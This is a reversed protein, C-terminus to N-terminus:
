QCRLAAFVLESDHAGAARLDGLGVWGDPGVAASTGFQTDLPLTSSTTPTGDPAFRDFLIPQSPPADPEDWHLVMYHSGDWLVQGVHSPSGRLVSSSGVQHGQGDLASFVAGREEPSVIPPQQVEFLIGFGDSGAALSVGWSFSPRFLEASGVIAGARDLRLLELKSGEATFVVLAYGDNTVAGARIETDPGLSVPADLPKWHEDVVVRSASSIAKGDPSSSRDNWALLASGPRLLVSTGETNWSHDLRALIDIPASLVGDATVTKLLVHHDHTLTTVVFLGEGVAGGLSGLMPHNDDTLTDDLVRQDGLVQGQPDLRLLNAPWPGMIGMPEIYLAGWNKGSWGTLGGITFHPRVVVPDTLACGGGFDKGQISVTRTSSAGDCGLAWIVAFIRARTM